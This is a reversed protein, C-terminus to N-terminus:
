KSRKEAHMEEIKLQLVRLQDSLSQIQRQQKINEQDHSVYKSKLHTVPSYIHIPPTQTSVTQNGLSALTEEESEGRRM